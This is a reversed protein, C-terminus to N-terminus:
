MVHKWRAARSVNLTARSEVHEAAALQCCAQQGLTVNVFLAPFDDVTPDKTREDSAQLQELQQRLAQSLNQAAERSAAETSVAEQAAAAAARAESLQRELAATAEAERSREKQM